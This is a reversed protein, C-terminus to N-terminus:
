FHNYQNIWKIDCPVLKLIFSCMRCLLFPIFVLLSCSQQDELGCLSWQGQSKDAKKTATVCDKRKTKGNQNTNRKGRWLSIQTRPGCISYASSIYMKTKLLELIQGLSSNSILAQLSKKVELFTLWWKWNFIAWKWPTGSYAGQLSWFQLETTYLISM